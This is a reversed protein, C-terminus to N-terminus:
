DICNLNVRTHTFSAKGWQNNQLDMLHMVVRTIIGVRSMQESIKFDIKGNSSRTTKKLAFNM